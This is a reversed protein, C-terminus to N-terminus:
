VIIYHNKDNSLLCMSSDTAVNMVSRVMGDKECWEFDINVM